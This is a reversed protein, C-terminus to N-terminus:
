PTAEVIHKSGPVDQDCRAALCKSGAEEGYMVAAGSVAQALRLKLAAGSYGDSSPLVLAGVEAELVLETGKRHGWASVWEVTEEDLVMACFDTAM